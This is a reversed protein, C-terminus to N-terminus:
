YGTYCGNPDPTLRGVYFTGAVDTTWVEVTTAGADVKVQWAEQGEDTYKMKPASGCYQNLASLFLPADTTSTFTGDPLAIAELGGKLRVENNIDQEKLATIAANAITDANSIDHSIKSKKIYKFLYAGVVSVLIAIVAVVILLEVLSFGKNHRKRLRM